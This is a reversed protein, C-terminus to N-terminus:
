KLGPVTRANQSSPMRVLQEVQKSLAAGHVHINAVKGDRGVLMVFPVAEVGYRIANPNGFLGGVTEDIVTPWPLHKQGLYDYVDDKTEDLNVGVVEFGDDHFRDYAAKINQLEDRWPASWSAWFDVLIVKGQLKGWNFPTGDMHVGQIDIARGIVGLRKEANQVSRSAQEALKPDAKVFANKIAAFVLKADEFKGSYELMQGANLTTDLTEVSLQDKDQLLDRIGLFLTRVEQKGGNLALIVKERFATKELLEKAEQALKADSSKAFHNGVLRLVKTAEGAYGSEDLPVGAYQTILFESHGANEDRLIDELRAVVQAANQSVGFSLRDIEYEYQSVRSLLAFRPSDGQKLMEAFPEFHVGLGNPELLALMRLADLKAKVAAEVLSSNGHAADLIRDAAILRSRARRIHDATVEGETNGRPQQIALQEIFRLLEEPALDPVPYAPDPQLGQDIPATPDQGAEAQSEDPSPGAAEVVAVEPTKSGGCGLATIAAFCFIFCVPSRM